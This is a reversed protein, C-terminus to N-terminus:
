GTLFSIRSAACVAVQAQAKPFWTSRNQLRDMHPTHVHNAGPLDRARWINDLDDVIMLMVNNRTGPAGPPSGAAATPTWKCTGPAIIAGFAIVNRTQGQGVFGFAASPKETANADGTGTMPAVRTSRSTDDMAESTGQEAATTVPATTIATISATNSNCVASASQTLASNLAYFTWGTGRAGKAATASYMNCTIWAMKASPKYAYAVCRPLRLCFTACAAADATDKQQKTAILAQRSKAMSNEAARFNKLPGAACIGERTTAPGSSARDYLLFGARYGSTDVNSADTATKSSMRCTQLGPSYSYALCLANERCVAECAARTDGAVIASVGTGEPSQVVFRMADCGIKSTQGRCVEADHNREAAADACKHLSGDGESTTCDCVGAPSVCTTYLALLVAAMATRPWQAGM